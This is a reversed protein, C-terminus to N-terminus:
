AGHLVKLPGLGCPVLFMILIKEAFNQRKVLKAAVHTFLSNSSVGLWAIFRTVHEVIGVDFGVLLPFPLRYSDKLAMRCPFSHGEGM